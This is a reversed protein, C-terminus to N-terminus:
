FLSLKLDERRSLSLLQVRQLLVSLLLVVLQPAVFQERCRGLSAVSVQEILELGAAVGNGSTHRCDAAEAFGQGTVEQAKQAKQKRMKKWEM